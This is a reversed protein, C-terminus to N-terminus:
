LLSPASPVNTDTDPDAMVVQSEEADEASVNSSKRRLLRRQGRMFKCSSKGVTKADGASGESRAKWLNALETFWGPHNLFNVGQKTKVRVLNLMAKLNHANTRSWLQNDITQCENFSSSMSRWEEFGAVLTCFNWVPGAVILAKLLPAFADLGQIEKTLPVVPVNAKMSSALREQPMHNALLEAVKHGGEVVSLQQISRTRQM